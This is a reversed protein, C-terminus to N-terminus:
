RARPSRALVAFESPPHPRCARTCTSTPLMPRSSTAFSRTVALSTKYKDDVASFDRRFREAVVNAIHAASRDIHQHLEEGMAKMEGRLEEGMAKMEGRLEEGMAKMEGRLGEGMAKMEGRLQTTTQELDKKTALESM